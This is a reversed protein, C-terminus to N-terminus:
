SKAEFSTIEHEWKKLDHVIFRLSDRSTRESRILLRAKKFHTGGIGMSDGDGSFIIPKMSPNAMRMGAALAPGRGHLALIKQAKRHVLLM